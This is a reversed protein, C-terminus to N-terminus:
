RRCTKEVALDAVPKLVSPANLEVGVIQGVALGVLDGVGIARQQLGVRQERLALRAYRWRSHARISDHVPNQMGDFRKCNAQRHGPLESADAARVFRDALGFCRSARM